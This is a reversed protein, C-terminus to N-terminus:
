THRQRDTEREWYRQRDRSRETETQRDRDREWHLLLCFKTLFRFYGGNSAEWTRRIQKGGGGRGKKLDKKKVNALVEDRDWAYRTFLYKTHLATSFSIQIVFLSGSSSNDIRRIVRRPTALQIEVVSFLLAVSRHRSPILYDKGTWVAGKGLVRSYTGWTPKSIIWIDTDKYDYRNRYGVM